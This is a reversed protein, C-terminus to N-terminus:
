RENKIKNFQETSTIRRWTTNDYEIIVHNGQYEYNSVTNMGHETNSYARDLNTQEDLEPVIKNTGIVATVIGVTVFLVFIGMLLIRKM